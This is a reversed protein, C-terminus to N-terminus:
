RGQENEFAELFASAIDSRHENYYDVWKKLEQGFAWLDEFSDIMVFGHLTKFGMLYQGNIEMPELHM